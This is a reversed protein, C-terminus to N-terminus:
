VLSAVWGVGVWFGIATGLGSAVAILLIRTVPNRWFGKLSQVDEPLRECDASARNADGRKSSVSSWAPAWSRTSQRSPRSSSRVSLDLLISGGALLTLGAAGISTPLIWALMM